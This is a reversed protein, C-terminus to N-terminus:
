DALILWNEIDKSELDRKYANPKELPMEEFGVPCMYHNYCHYIYAKNGQQLGAKLAKLATKPTFESTINKSGKPKYFIRASGRVGFYKCIRNFNSVVSSNGSFPGFRIEDFPPKFGLIDLATEQTLIPRRLNNLEGLNSFLYNWCATM